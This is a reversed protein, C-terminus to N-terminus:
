RVIREYPATLPGAVGDGNVPEFEYIWAGPEVCAATREYLAVNDAAGNFPATASLSFQASGAVATLTGSHFGAATLQPGIVGAGGILAPILGGAAISPIELSWAYAKGQTLGAAQLLASATGPAHSAVGSAITWGTEKTWDQDASFNGNVLISIRSVDGDAFSLAALSAAPVERVLHVTRDLATGPRRRYVNITETSAGTTLNVIAHGAGATVVISEEIIAGPLPLDGGGIAITELATPPGPVNDESVAFVRLEVIAGAPYQTFDAGGDAVPVVTQSFPGAGAARHEVIFIRLRQTEGDAAAILVTMRNAVGTGAIGTQISVIRPALPAITSGGIVSGNRGTWPPPVEADTLAEIEPAHDILHFATNGDGGTETARVICDVSEARYPGIHILEGVDPL